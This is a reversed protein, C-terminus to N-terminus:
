AESHFWTARLDISSRGWASAFRWVAMTHVATGGMM